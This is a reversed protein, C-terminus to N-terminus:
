QVISGLGWGECVDSSICIQIQMTQYNGLIPHGWYSGLFVGIMIIAHVLFNGLNQPFDLNLWERELAKKTAQIRQVRDLQHQVPDSNGGTEATGWTVKAVSTMTM